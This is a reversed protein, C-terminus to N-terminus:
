SRLAVPQGGARANIGDIQMLARGIQCPRGERM